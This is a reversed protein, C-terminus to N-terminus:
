AGPVAAMVVSGVISGLPDLSWLECSHFDVGSERVLLLGVPAGALPVLVAGTCTWGTLRDFVTVAGLRLPASVAIRESPPAQVSRAIVASQAGDDGFELLAAWDAGLASPAGDVLTRMARDPQSLVQQVLELAAHGTTPPAPHQVGRVAVGTLGELTTTLRDLHAVDRVTVFVDDLARGGESELVVVKAIDGGTSGIASAVRGLSGPRDPVRIRLRALV